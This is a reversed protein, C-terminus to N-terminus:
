LAEIMQIIEHPSEHVMLPMDSSKTRLASGTPLPSASSYDEVDIPIEQNPNNLDHLILLRM